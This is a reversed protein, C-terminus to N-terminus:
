SVMPHTKTPRTKASYELELSVVTSHTTVTCGKLLFNSKTFYERARLLTNWVSKDQHIFYSAM